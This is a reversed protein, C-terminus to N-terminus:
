FHGSIYTSYRNLEDERDWFIFNVGRAWLNWAAVWDGETKVTASDGSEKLLLDSEFYTNEMIATFAESPLPPRRISTRVRRLSEKSERSYNEIQLELKEAPQLGTFQSPYSSALFRVLKTDLHRRSRRSM